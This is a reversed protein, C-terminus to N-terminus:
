TGPVGTQDTMVEGCLAKLSFGPRPGRSQTGSSPLGRWRRLPTADNLATVVALTADVCGEVFAARRCLEDASLNGNLQAFVEHALGLLTTVVAGSTTATKTATFRPALATAAM